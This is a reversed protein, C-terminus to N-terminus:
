RMPHPRGLVLILLHSILGHKVDHSLRKWQLLNKDILSDNLALFRTIKYMRIWAFIYMNTNVNISVEESKLCFYITTYLNRVTNGSTNMKEDSYFSRAFHGGEPHQEMNLHEIYYAADRNQMNIVGERKFRDEVM